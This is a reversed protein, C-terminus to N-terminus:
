QNISKGLSQLSAEITDLFQNSVPNQIYIKNLLDIVTGDRVFARRIEPSNDTLCEIMVCFPRCINDNTFNINVCNLIVNFNDSSIIQGKLQPQQAEFMLIHLTTACIESSSTTWEKLLELLLDVCDISDM